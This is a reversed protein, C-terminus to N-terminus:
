LLVRCVTYKSLAPSNNSMIELFIIYLLIYIFIEDSAVPQLYIKWTEMKFQSNEHSKQSHCHLMKGWM